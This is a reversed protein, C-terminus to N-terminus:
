DKFRLLPIQEILYQVGYQRLYVSVTQTNYWSPPKCVNLKEEREGWM